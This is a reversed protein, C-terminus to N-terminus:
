RNDAFIDPVPNASRIGLRAERGRQVKQWAFDVEPEFREPYLLYWIQKRILLNEPDAEAARMWAGLAEKKRGERLLRVGEQFAAAGVVSPRAATADGPSSLGGALVRDVTAAVESKRIDFGGVQRFRIVGDGDIIWGNPIARFGYQTALLGETDVLVPYQAGAARAHRRAMEPGGADMAVALIEVGAEAHTEFFRQWV